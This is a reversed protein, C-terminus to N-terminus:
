CPANKCAYILARSSSPCSLPVLSGGQQGYVREICANTAAGSQLAYAISDLQSGVIAVRIETQFFAGASAWLSSPVVREARYAYWCQGMVDCDSPAADSVATGVISERGTSPNRARIVIDKGPERIFGSFPIPASKGGKFVEGDRPSGMCGAAVLLGILALSRAARLALSSSRDTLMPDEQMSAAMEHTSLADMTDPAAGVM